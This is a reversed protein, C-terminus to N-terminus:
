GLQLLVQAYKYVARPPKESIQGYRFFIRARFLVEKSGNVATFRERERDTNSSSWSSIMSVNATTMRYVLLIQGSQMPVTMVYFRINTLRADLDSNRRVVSKQVSKHGTIRGSHQICWSMMKLKVDRPM